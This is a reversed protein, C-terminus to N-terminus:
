YDGVVEGGARTALAPLLTATTYPLFRVSGDAFLWQAGGPHLSWYHYRDCSNDIRGPGFQQPTAGCTIHGPHYAEDVALIGDPGREFDHSVDTVNSYWQGAQLSGPPPREGAMVTGSTGDTIDEYRSGFDSGFVGLGRASSGSVGVYSSFAVLQGTAPDPLASKLRADAPCLYVPIVTAYPVHPPNHFPNNDAQCARVSVDWLAAQDVQPLILALWSLLQNPDHGLGGGPPTRYSLPPFRGHASYYNHLALGIQKLSNQCGAKAGAARASQVAPLILGLLLSIIGLM